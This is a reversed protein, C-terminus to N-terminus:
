FFSLNKEDIVSSQRIAKYQGREIVMGSATDIVTYSGNYIFDSNTQWIRKTGDRIDMFEVLTDNIRTIYAVTDLRDNTTVSRITKGHASLGTTKYNTATDFDYYHGNMYGATDTEYCNVLLNKDKSYEKHLVTSDNKKIIIRVNGDSSYHLLIPLDGPFVSISDRLFLGKQCRLQAPLILLLALIFTRHQM